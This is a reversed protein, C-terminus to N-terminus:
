DKKKKDNEFMSNDAKNKNLVGESVPLSVESERTWEGFAWLVWPHALYFCPAQCETWIEGTLWVFVFGEAPVQQWGVTSVLQFNRDSAISPSLSLSLSLLYPGGLYCGFWSTFCRGRTATKNNTIESCWLSWKPWGESGFTFFYFSYKSCHFVVPSFICLRKLSYPLYWRSISSCNFMILGGKFLVLLFPFIIDRIDTIHGQLWPCLRNWDKKLM